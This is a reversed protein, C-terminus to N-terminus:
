GAKSLTNYNQRNSPKIVTEQRRVCRIENYIDMGQELALAHRVQLQQSVAPRCVKLMM